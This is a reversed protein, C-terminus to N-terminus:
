YTRQAQETSHFGQFEGHCSTPCEDSLFRWSQQEREVGISACALRLSQNTMIHVGAVEPRINLISYHGDTPGSYKSLAGLLHARDIMTPVLHVGTGLHPGTGLALGCTKIGYMICCKGRAWWMAMKLCDRKFGPLPIIHTGKRSEGRRHKTTM